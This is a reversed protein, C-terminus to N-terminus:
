YLRPGFISSGIRVLNAGCEIAEAYDSSMGMSLIQMNINDIKKRGIDVFMERMKYFYDCLKEKEDCIPPITMLGEVRVHSMLSLAELLPELEELPLGTKSEEKAINVEILCPMVKGLKECQRDIERALKLSDVSQIMSVHPVIQRVKNTQLHGILHAEVWDLNLFPQKSLFEQVKNEGILGVGCAIAHNIFIPEVTKTVAMLRVDDATRGSKAAAEAIRERIFRLNVEITQERLTTSLKETM